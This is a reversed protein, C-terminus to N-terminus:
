LQARGEKARIPEAGVACSPGKNAPPAALGRLCGRRMSHGRSAVDETATHLSKVSPAGRKVTRPFWGLARRLLRGACVCLCVCACRRASLRVGAHSRTPHWSLLVQEGPEPPGRNTEKMQNETKQTTAGRAWTSMHVRPPILVRRRVTLRSSASHM